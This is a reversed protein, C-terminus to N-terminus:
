FDLKKNGRAPQCLIEGQLIRALKGREGKGIGQAAIRERAAAIRQSIKVARRQQEGGGSQLPPFGASKQGSGRRQQPHETLSSFQILFFEIGRWPQCRNHLALVRVM